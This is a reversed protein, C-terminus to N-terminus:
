STSSKDQHADYGAELEGRLFDEFLLPPFAEAGQGTPQLRTITARVNPDFFFPVSYRERGTRNIVRHPTSKLIGGSWRHLMDGVNVVLADPIVPVDLWHGDPHLVQLGGVDDTALLTLAGFDCHPASGYLDAEAQAPVPPYHLLRLWTTPPAFHPAFADAPAGLALAAVRLLRHGLAAMADHYAMCADRFGELEPWQNPGGLYLAAEPSGPADERLMMFSESQNPKTVKALDSNVDTSTGMAIFGRHNTNLAIAEKATRPLAHFRRSADFVAARLAPDIGHGTICGFGLTSYAERFAEVLAPPTHTDTLGTADLIPLTM